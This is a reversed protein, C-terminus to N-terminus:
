KAYILYKNEGSINKKYLKPIKTFYQKFIIKERKIAASKTLENKRELLKINMFYNFKLIYGLLYYELLAHTKYFYLYESIQIQEYKLGTALTSASNFHYVELDSFFYNQFGAKKFKYSWEVDEYYLFFDEDLYLDKEVIKSKKVMVCAGSVFDIKHNQYHKLQPNYAINNKFIKRTFYIYIPNAKIHKKLSPFGIGSGIMLKKDTSSIIRCGLLGLTNNLDTTIYFNLMNKLFNDKIYSDPNLLLCHTGKAAKIGHNNARSFGANYGSNIWIINKFQRKILTESNDQSDNDVIIVEFNLDSINSYISNICTSLLEPTKYHVIIISLKM